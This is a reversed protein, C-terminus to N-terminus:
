KWVLLWQNKLPQLCDHEEKIRTRSARQLCGLVRSMLLSLVRYQGLRTGASNRQWKKFLGWTEEVVQSHDRPLHSPAHGGGFLTLCILTFPTHLSCASSAKATIRGRRIRWRWPHCEQFCSSAHTRGLPSGSLCFLLCRFGGHSVSSDTSAVQIQPVLALWDKFRKRNM